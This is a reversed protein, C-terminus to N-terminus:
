TLLRHLTTFYLFGMEIIVGFLYFLAFKLLCGHKTVPFFKLFLFPLSIYRPFLHPLQSLSLITSPSQLLTASLPSRLYYLLQQHKHWEQFKSSSILPSSPANERIKKPFCSLFPTKKQPKRIHLGPKSIIKKKLFFNSCFKVKLSQFTM